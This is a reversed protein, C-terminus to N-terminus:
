LNTDEVGVYAKGYFVAGSAPTFKFEIRHRHDAIPFGTAPISFKFNYGTTDKTWISDTQLTDYVASAITVTPTIIATGPTAGDEDYVGCSISSLSAQTIATGANGLVRALYTAGGNQFVVDQIINIASM